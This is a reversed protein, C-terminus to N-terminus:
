TPLLGPVNKRIWDTILMNNPNNSGGAAPASILAHGYQDAARQAAANYGAGALPNMSSGSIDRILNYLVSQQGGQGAGRLINALSSTSKQNQGFLNGLLERANFARGGTSGYSKYMSALWNTFDGLGTKESMNRNAGTMINYLALPDAGIDRLAQYGPGAETMGPFVDPLINFPSQYITQALQAPQYQAAFGTLPDMGSTTGANPDIAAASTQDGPFEKKYPKGTTPDIGM